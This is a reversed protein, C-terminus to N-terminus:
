NRWHKAIMPWVTSVGSFLPLPLAGHQVFEIASAKDPEQISPNQDTKGAVYLTIYHKGPFFDETFQGLVTCSYMDVGLEEQVERRACDIVSEGFELHGGPFSWEGSGHSGQRRLFVVGDPCLLAVGVGVRAQPSNDM